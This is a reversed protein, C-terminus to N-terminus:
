HIQQSSPPCIQDKRQTLLQDYVEQLVAVLPAFQCGIPIYMDVSELTVFMVYEYAPRSAQRRERMMEILKQAELESSLPAPFFACNFSRPELPTMILGHPTPTGTVPPEGNFVTRIYKGCRSIDDCAIFLDDRYVSTSKEYSERLSPHKTIRGSGVLM